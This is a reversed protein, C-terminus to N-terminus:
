SGSGRHDHAVPALAAYVGFRETWENFPVRAADTGRRQGGIKSGASPVGDLGRSGGFCEIVFDLLSPRDDNEQLLTWARKVINDHNRTRSVADHVVIGRSVRKAHGAGGVEVSM